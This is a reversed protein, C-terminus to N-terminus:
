LDFAAFTELLRTPEDLLVMYNRCPRNTGHGCQLYIIEKPVNALIATTIGGKSCFRWLLSRSSRWTLLARKVVAGAMKVSLPPHTAVPLQAPGNAFRLFLSSLSRRPRITQHLPRRHDPGDHLGMAPTSHRYRM